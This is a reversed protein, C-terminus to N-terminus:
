GAVIPTVSVERTCLDMARWFLSGVEGHGWGETAFIETWHDEDIKPEVCVRALLAPAFTDPNYAGGAVRQEATPPNATILADYTRWDIAQFLFSADAGGPGLAANFELRKPKKDLLMEFTARGAPSPQQKKSQVAGTAKAM